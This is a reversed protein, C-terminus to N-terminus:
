DRKMVIGAMYPINLLEDRSLRVPHKPEVNYFVLGLEEMETVFRDLDLGAAVIQGPSWEMMITLQPNATITRAAGRLALPEAGEVDIKIFDVRGGFEEALDDIRIGKVSFREAPPEGMHTTFNEDYVIISTNGSRTIRRYLIIEQDSDGAAAHIVSGNHALNNIALNERALKAIRQDAEVGIVKGAPCFRAMLCTFYGFNAGIDLCHSDPKLHDALYNRVSIEYQGTAAFWPTILLDDAEVLYVITRGRYKTRVLVRNNGVYTARTYMQAIFDSIREKITKLM